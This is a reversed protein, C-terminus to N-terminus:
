ATEAQSFDVEVPMEKGFFSVKVRIHARVSDVETVTGIFDEFPGDLIRVKQGVIYVKQRPENMQPKMESTLLFFLQGDSSKIAAGVRRGQRDKQETVFKFGQEHLRELRDPMDPAFYTITPQALKPTQHFGLRILGDSLVAWPYPQQGETVCEFGVQKWFAVAAKVDDTQLSLEAAPGYKSFFKRGSPITGVDSSLDALLMRQGEPSTFEASMFKVRYLMEKNQMGQIPDLKQINQLEIGLKVRYLMEKNQMGQIPDLKQINQLEIGLKQLYDKRKRLMGLQFYSLAPSSFPQQHLGLYFRGDSVVAWPYPKEGGDVKELGLQSYFGLSGALDAVSLSIEVYHGLKFFKFWKDPKGAEKEPPQDAAHTKGLGTEEPGPAPGLIEAAIAEFLREREARSLIINEQTLVREFGEQLMQREEDSYLLDMEPNLEALLRDQIRVKLEDFIDRPYLTTPSVYGRQRAVSQYVRRISTMLEDRSFPKILFEKAGALLARRMYDAEGHVSMMIVGVAPLQHSIVEAAQIGDMGPLVLDMLVIDPRAEPAWRVAEEGTAAVGVVDIDPEFYLLKRM